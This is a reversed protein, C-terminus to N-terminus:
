RVAASGEEPLGVQQGPQRASQRIAERVVTVRVAGPVAEPAGDGPPHHPDRQAVPVDVVMVDRGAVANQRQRQATVVDGAVAPPPLAVPASRQGTGARGAAQLRAPRVPRRIVPVPADGGVRLRGAPQHRAHERLGVPRRGLPDDGAGVGGVSRRAPALLAAEQVSVVSVVAAKGKVDGAAPMDRAGPKPGRVDVGGVPRQLPRHPAPPTSETDPRARLGRGPRPVPRRIRPWRLRHTAVPSGGRRNVPKPWRVSGAQLRLRRTTALAPASGPGPPSLGRRM